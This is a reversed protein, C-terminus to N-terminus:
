YGQRKARAEAKKQDVEIEKNRRNCFKALQYIESLPLDKLAKYDGGGM